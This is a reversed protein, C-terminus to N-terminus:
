ARRTNLRCSSATDATLAPCNVPGTRMPMTCSKASVSSAPASARKASSLSKTTSYTWGRSSDTLKLTYKSSGAYTVSATIVDGLGAVLGADGGIPLICTLQRAGSNDAVTLWTRMQVM